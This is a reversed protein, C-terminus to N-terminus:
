KKFGSVIRDFGCLDDSIKINELSDQFISTIKAGQGEGHEAVFFGDNKLEDLWFDHIARYFELGDCGGDLATKPEFHVQKQLFEIHSSNIYPPNSLICDAKEEIPFKKTIDCKIVKVNETSNLAINKKIYDIPKDYKEFLYVKANPFLKAVSIGVCGTGSCLDFVVPTKLKKLYETALEVLMETEPRPILVGDGVAFDFGMFSWKGILYQLPVGSILKKADELLLFVDESVETHYNLLFDTKSFGFFNMVLQKAQFSFDDIKNEEFDASIANYLQFYTM